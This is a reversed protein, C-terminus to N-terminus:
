APTINVAVGAWDSEGTGTIYVQPGTSAHMQVTGPHGGTTEDKRQQDQTWGTGVTQNIAGDYRYEFGAIQLDGAATTFTGLSKTGAPAQNSAYLVDFTTPDGAGSIEYMTWQLKTYGMYLDQEDGTAVRYALVMGDGGADSTVECGTFNTFARVAGMSTEIQPQWNPPLGVLGSGRRGIVLVLLNGATVPYTFTNNDAAGDGTRYSNQQVISVTDPVPAPTAEIAIQYFEDNLQTVTRRLCRWYGYNATYGPLHTFQAEFRQGERLDNVNAAPVVFRCNTLRDDESAADTLYRTALATAEAATKVNPNSVAADRRQFLNEVVTSQQYLEGGDYQLYIGSYTRAPSRTLIADPLVYFTTVDDADANVNTLRLTSTYYAAEPAYYHLAVSGTNTPPVTDNAEYYMAFWNKGSRQACDNLVDFAAQGRLDAASMTVPDSTDIYPSPNEWTDQPNSLYADNSDLLWQIREIDTEEGRVGDAGTILRRSLLSNTDAVTLDWRRGHIEVDGDQGEAPDRGIKREQLYGNFVMQNHAQARTEYAYVRHLGGINLTNATDDIIIQSQAVSGEEAASTLSVGMRPTLTDPVGGTVVPNNYRIVLSM